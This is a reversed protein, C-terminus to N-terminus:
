VAHHLQRLGPHNGVPRLGQMRAFKDGVEKHAGLPKVVKHVMVRVHQDQRHIVDIMGQDDALVVIQDGDVGAHLHVQHAM